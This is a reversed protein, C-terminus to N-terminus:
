IKGLSTQVVVLRHGPVVHRWAVKLFDHLVELYDQGYSISENVILERVPQLRGARDGRACVGFPSM